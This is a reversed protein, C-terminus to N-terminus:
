RAGRPGRERLKDFPRRRRVAAPVLLAGLAVFASMPGLLTVLRPAVLAGLAAASVM